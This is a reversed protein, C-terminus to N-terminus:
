YPDRRAAAVLWLIVGVSAVILMMPTVSFTLLAATTGLLGDSLEAPLLSLILAPTASLLAAVLGWLLLGKGWARLTM